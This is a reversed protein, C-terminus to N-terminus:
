PLCGDYVLEVEVLEGAFAPLPEASPRLLGAALLSLAAVALLPWLRRSPAVAAGLSPDVLM